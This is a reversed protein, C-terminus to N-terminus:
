DLAQDETSVKGSSSSGKAKDDGVPVDKAPASEDKKAKAAPAEKKAGKSESKPAGPKASDKDPQSSDSSKPRELKQLLQDLAEDRHKPVDQAAQVATWLVALSIVSTILSLGFHRSM